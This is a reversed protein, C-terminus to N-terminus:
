RTLIIKPNYQQKHYTKMSNGIAMFINKRNNMVWFNESLM